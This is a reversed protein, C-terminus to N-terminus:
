TTTTTCTEIQYHVLSLLLFHLYVLRFRLIHSSVNKTREEERWVNIFFFWFLAVIPPLRILCIRHHSLRASSVLLLPPHRQRGGRICPPPPGTSIHYAASPRPLVTYVPKVLTTRDDDPRPAHTPPYSAPLPSTLTFPTLHALLRGEDAEVCFSSSVISHSHGGAAQGIFLPTPPTGTITLYRPTQIDIPRTSPSPSPPPAALIITFRMRYSLNVCGHAQEERM